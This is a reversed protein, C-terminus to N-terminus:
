GYLFSNKIGQARSKSRKTFFSVTMPIMPFVCPMILALFGSFFAAIFIVWLSTSKEEKKPNLEKEKNNLKKDTDNKDNVAVSTTNETTSDAKVEGIIECGEATCVAKASFPALCHSEDCAQFEYSINIKV